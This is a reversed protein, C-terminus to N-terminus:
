EVYTIDFTISASIDDVTVDISSSFGEETKTLYVTFSLGQLTFTATTVTESLKDFVCSKIASLVANEDEGLKQKVSDGYICTLQLYNSVEFDFSEIDQALDELFYNENLYIRGGSQQCNFNIVRFKGILNKHKYYFLYDDFNIKKDSNFDYAKDSNKWEKYGKYIEYDEETIRRDGNYDEALDSDRWTEYAGDIDLVGNDCAIFFASCLGCFLSLVIVFLLRKWMYCGKICM